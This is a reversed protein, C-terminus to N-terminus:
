AYATEQQQTEEKTIYESIQIILPSTELERESPTHYTPYQSRDIVIDEGKQWMSQKQRWEYLLVLEDRVRKLKKVPDEPKPEAWYAGLMRGASDLGYWEHIKERLSLAKKSIKEARDDPPEGDDGM